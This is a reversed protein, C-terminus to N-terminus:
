KEGKKLMSTYNRYFELFSEKDLAGLEKIPKGQDDKEKSIYDRLAKLLNPKLLQALPVFFQKIEMDPRVPPKFIEDRDWLLGLMRALGDLREQQVIADWYLYFRIANPSAWLHRAREETPLTATLALVRGWDAFRQGYDGQYPSGSRGLQGDNPSVHQGATEM